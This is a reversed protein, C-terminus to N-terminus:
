YDYKTDLDDDVLNCGRIETFTSYHILKLCRTTDRNSAFLNSWTSPPPEPSTSATAALPVNADMPAEPASLAPVAALAFDVCSPSLIPTPQTGTPSVFPSPPAIFVPTTFFKSGGEYDEESSDFDVEEDDDDSCYEVFIHNISPSPDVHYQSVHGYLSSHIQPNPCLSEPALTIPPSHNSNSNPLVIAHVIYSLSM